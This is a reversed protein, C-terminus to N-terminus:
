PSREPMILHGSADCLRVRVLRSTGNVRGLFQELHPLGCTDLGSWVPGLWRHGYHLSDACSPSSAAVVPAFLQLCYTAGGMRLLSRFAARRNPGSTIPLRVRHYATVSLFSNHTTASSCDSSSTRAPHENECSTHCRSISTTSSLLIVAQTHVYTSTPLCEYLM